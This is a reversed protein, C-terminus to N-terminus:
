VFNYSYGDVLGTKFFLYVIQIGCFILYVVTLCSVVTIATTILQNKVNLTPTVFNKEIMFGAACIVGGSSYFAVVGLVIETFSFFM